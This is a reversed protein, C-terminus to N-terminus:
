LSMRAKQRTVYDLLEQYFPDALATEFTCDLIRKDWAVKVILPDISIYAGRGAVKGSPDISIEGEKNKVIRIMEKKPKMKNSAICKRMPIKRKQM